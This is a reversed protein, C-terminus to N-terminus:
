TQRQDAKLLYACADHKVRHQQLQQQAINIKSQRDTQRAALRQLDLQLKVSHHCQHGLKVYFHLVGCIM